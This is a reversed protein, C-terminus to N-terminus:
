DTKYKQNSYHPGSYELPIEIGEIGVSESGDKKHVHHKRYHKKHGERDAMQLALALIFGILFMISFLLIYVAPHVNFATLVSDM